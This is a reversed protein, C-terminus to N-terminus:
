DINWQASPDGEFAARYMDDLDAQSYGSDYDDYPEEKSPLEKWEHLLNGERDIQNLYNSKSEVNAIGEKFSYIKYYAAPVVIKGKENILGCNSFQYHWGGDGEDAFERFACLGESFSFLYKFVPATRYKDKLNILGYKRDKVYITQGNKVPRIFDFKMPIVVEGKSNIIGWQGYNIRNFAFFSEEKTGKFFAKDIPHESNIVCPAYNEHFSGIYSFETDVIADGDLSLLNYYLRGDEKKSITTIVGAEKYLFCGSYNGEIEGLLEGKFGLFIRHQGDKVSLYGLRKNFTIAEHYSPTIRKQTNIAFCGDKTKLITVDDETYTEEIDAYKEGFSTYVSFCGGVEKDSIYHNKSNPIYEKEVGDIVDNILYGDESVASLVDNDDYFSYSGRNEGWLWQYAIRGPSLPYIYHGSEDIIGYGRNEKKVIFQGEKGSSISDFTLPVIPSFSNDFLGCKQGDETLVSVKYISEAMSDISVVDGFDLESQKISDYVSMKPEDGSGNEIIWFRSSRDVFYVPYDFECPITEFPNLRILGRKGNRFTSLGQFSRGWLSGSNTYFPEIQDYPGEFRQCDLSTIFIQKSYNNLLIYAGLHSHYEDVYKVDLLYELHVISSNGLRNDKTSGNIFWSKHIHLLNRSEINYLDCLYEGATDIPYNGIVIKNVTLEYPSKKQYHVNKSKFPVISDYKIDLLKRGDNDYCGSLGNEEVVIFSEDIGYVKDFGQEVLECLVEKEENYKFIFYKGSRLIRFISSSLRSIVVGSFEMIVFEEHARNFRILEVNNNKSLLYHFADIKFITDYSYDRLINQKSDILGFLSDKLAVAIGSYSFDTMWSIDKPKDIFVGDSGLIRRNTSLGDIIFSGVHKNENNYTSYYHYDIFDYVCPFLTKFAGDKFVIFGVKNTKYVYFQNLETKSDYAEEKKEIREYPQTYSEGFTPANLSPNTSFLRMGTDNYALIVQSSLLGIYEYEIPVLIDGSNNIVGKNNGRSIVYYFPLDKIEVHRVIPGDFKRSKVNFVQCYNLIECDDIENFSDGSYSYLYMHGDKKEVLCDGIYMYDSTKQTLFSESNLAPISFKKWRGEINTHKHLLGYFSDGEQTIFSYEPFEISSDTIIVGNGEKNILGFRDRSVSVKSVGHNFSDVTEYQPAIVISGETNIFGWTKYGLIAALGESFSNIACYRPNLIVKGFDNAIGFLSDKEIVFCGSPDRHISDFYDSIRNNNRDMFFFGNSSHGISIVDYQEFVEYDEILPHKQIIFLSESFDIPYARISQNKFCYFYGSSGYPQMEIILRKGEAGKYAVTLTRQYYSDGFNDWRKEVIDELVVGRYFRNGDSVLIYSTPKMPKHARECLQALHGSLVVTDPLISADSSFVERFKDLEFGTIISLSEFSLM